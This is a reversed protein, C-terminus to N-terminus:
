ATRDFLQSHPSDLSDSLSVNVSAHLEFVSFCELLFINIGEYRRMELYVQVTSVKKWTSPVCDM